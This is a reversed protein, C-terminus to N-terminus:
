FTWTRYETEAPPGPALQLVPPVSLQMVLSGLTMGQGESNRAVSIPVECTSLLAKVREVDIPQSLDALSSSLFNFRLESDSMAADASPDTQSGKGFVLSLVSEDRLPHDDNVLPHNTHHIRTGTPMFQVVKNPSSEFDVVGDPGGVAYNQASAHSVERIFATADTLSTHELVHRVVFAVPLGRQTGGLQSISNVCVGVAQNNLGTTGILGAPTFLFSELGGDSEVRLLTQTGDYWKPLDMNQALIPPQGEGFVAITSCHALGRGRARKQQFRFFWEEDMLQYAYADRFSLNAAEGIGRVEALLDPTWREISPIFDTSEVFRDLYENPRIGTSRHIHEKWREMGQAILPRLAEGHIHGREHPTGSLHLLQIDTSTSM